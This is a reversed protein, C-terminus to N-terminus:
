LPRLASCLVTVLITDNENPEIVEIEAADENVSKVVGFTLKCGASNSAGCKWLVATGPKFHTTMM